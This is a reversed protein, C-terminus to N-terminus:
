KAPSAAGHMVQEGVKRGMATGVETSNRYHVGAWIRANAVETIFDDVSSWRRPKGPLTPSSTHLPSPPQAGIESAIVTGLAAAVICHACPYEPHMPTELLPLWTADPDTAQNGDLEGNRISTIPRWFNYAYKADFVAILADDMAQAALAFLRANRTIERGGAATLSRVIPFYIIPGTAEWFRAVDTQEASRKASNKGGIAKIEGFDRAWRASTLASPPGPRFQQATKM